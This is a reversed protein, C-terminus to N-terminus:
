NFLFRKISVFPFQERERERILLVVVCSRLNSHEMVVARKIKKLKVESCYNVGFQRM